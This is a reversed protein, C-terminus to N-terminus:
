EGFDGEVRDGGDAWNAPYIGRRVYRHFSSYPWDTVRAVQGHKVPNYHIYSIHREVDQEDRLTHEWFRRQWIGREGKNSRGLSRREGAPIRRSFRSKIERWRLAYDADGTPLIWICHLHDPLIVAADIGFPREVQVSRMAERLDDIREVLRRSARDLLTVTFFYRAGPIM